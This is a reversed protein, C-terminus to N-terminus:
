IKLMFYEGLQLTLFGRNIKRFLYSSIDFLTSIANGLRMLYVLIKVGSDRIRFGSDQIRVGSEQSRVGSEEFGLVRYRVVIPIAIYKGLVGKIKISM